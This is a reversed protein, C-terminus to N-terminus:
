IQALNKEAWVSKGDLLTDMPTRGCCMKGQHARENNSCEMWEDLDKQLKGMTTYFKKKLIGYYVAPFNLTNFSYLGVRDGKGIGKDALFAAVQDSQRLLAPLSQHSFDEEMM